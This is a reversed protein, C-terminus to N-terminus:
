RGFIRDLWSRARGVAHEVAEGAAEVAADVGSSCPARELPASGQMFPLEIAGPCGRGRLGSQPDIWVQEVREPKPLALPEPALLTMLEGWVPLAATSGSLRAARNDDYGQRKYM